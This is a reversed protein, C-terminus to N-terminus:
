LSDLIGLVTLAAGISKTNLVTTRDMSVEEVVYSMAEVTMLWQATYSSMCKLTGRVVFKFVTRFEVPRRLAVKSILAAIDMPLGIGSLAERQVEHAGFAKHAGQIELVPMRHIHM